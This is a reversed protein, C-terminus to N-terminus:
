NKYNIRDFFVVFHGGSIERIKKLNYRNFTPDLVRIRHNIKRPDEGSYYVHTKLAKKVNKDLCNIGRRKM